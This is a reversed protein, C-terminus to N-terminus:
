ASKAYDRFAGRQNTVCTKWADTRMYWRPDWQASKRLIQYRPRKPFIHRSRGFKTLIPCKIHYGLYTKNNSAVNLDGYFGEAQTFHYWTKLTTSSTCVKLSRAVTSRQLKNGTKNRAKCFDCNACIDLKRSSFYEYGAGHLLTTWFNITAWITLLNGM